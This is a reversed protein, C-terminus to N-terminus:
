LYKVLNLSQLQATLAYSTEIQTQLESVRAQAAYPDVSELNVIQTALINSQLSTQTNASSISAQAVGLGARLDSLKTMGGSILDRAKATLAEYSQQNMSEIGLDALMTYAQALKRFADENASVSTAIDQNSSIKSVIAENSASSWSSTWASEQFLDSFQTDLYSDLASADITSVSASTQSFGFASLFSADVASKNSSNSAFYDAVPANATDIGAFLADGASRTDLNAILRKLAEVAQDRITAANTTSGNSSLLANLMSQASADVDSLQNQTSDLRNLTATNADSISDLLQRESQLSLSRGTREALALGMDAHKGSLETQASALETQAKLVSRRLSASISQTSIYASM